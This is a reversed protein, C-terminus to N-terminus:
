EGSNNVEDHKYATKWRVNYWTMRYLMTSCDFYRINNRTSHKVPKCKYTFSRSSPVAAGPFTSIPHCRFHTPSFSDSPQAWHGFTITGLLLHQFYPSHGHIVQWEPSKGLARHSSPHSPHGQIGTCLVKVRIIPCSPMVLEASRAPWVTIISKNRGWCSWM